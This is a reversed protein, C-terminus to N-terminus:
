NLFEIMSSLDIRYSVKSIGSHLENRKIRPFRKQDVLFEFEEIVIFKYNLKTYDPGLYKNFEDDACKTQFIISEEMSLLQIIENYIIGLSDTNSKDIHEIRYVKLYLPKDELAELQYETSIKVSTSTRSITKLEITKNLLDFDHNAPAPRHWSNIIENVNDMDNLLMKKLELLEGFLGRAANISIEISKKGLNIVGKIENNFKEELCEDNTIANFREEFSNIWSNYFDQFIPNVLNISISNEFKVFSINELKPTFLLKMNVNKPFEVLLVSSFSNENELIKVLNDSLKM